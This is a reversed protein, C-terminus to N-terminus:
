AWEKDSRGTFLAIAKEILAETVTEVRYGRERSMRELLAIGKARRGIRAYGDGIEMLVGGHLLLVAEEKLLQADLQRARSHRADDRNELAIVFSTDLLVTRPV